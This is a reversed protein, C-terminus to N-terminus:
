SQEDIVTEQHSFQGFSDLSELKKTLVEPWSHQDLGKQSLFAYIIRQWGVGQCGSLIEKGSGDQLDFNYTLRTGAIDGGGIEVWPERGQQVLHPISLEIDLTPISYLKMEQGKLGSCVKERSCSGGVIIRYTLGLSEIMKIVSDFVEWRTQYCDEEYGAWVLEAGAFEFGTAFGSQLRTTLENRLTWGGQDEYVKLAGHEFLSTPLTGGNREQQKKLTEYFGICQLPDGLLEYNSRGEAPYLPAIRMLEYKLKENDTWGFHDLSSTSYHRPFIMERFGNQKAIDRVLKKFATFLSAMEPQYSYIGAKGEGALRTVWGRQEVEVEVNYEPVTLTNEKVFVVTGEINEFKEERDLIHQEENM